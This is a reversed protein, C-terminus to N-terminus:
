PAQEDAVDRSRRFLIFLGVTAAVLFAAAIGAEIPLGKPMTAVILAVVHMITFFFAFRFFQGYDPQSRHDAVDEGCAYSKTKGPPMVKGEPQKLSLTRDFGVYELAILALVIAFLVPPMLILAAYDV